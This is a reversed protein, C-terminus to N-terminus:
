SLTCKTIFFTYICQGGIQRALYANEQICLVIIFLKLIDIHYGSPPFCFPVHCSFGFLCVIIWLVNCFISLSITSKTSLVVKLLIQAIDHGDSLTTDLVGRWSSVVQFYQINVVLMSGIFVTINGTYFGPSLDRFPFHPRSKLYLLCFM